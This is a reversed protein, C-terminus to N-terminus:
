ELYFIREIISGLNASTLESQKQFDEIYDYFVNEFQEDSIYKKLYLCITKVCDM